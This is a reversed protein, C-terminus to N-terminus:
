SISNGAADPRASVFAMSNRVPAIGSSFGQENQPICFGWLYRYAIVKVASKGHAKGKYGRQAKRSFSHYALCKSLEDLTRIEVCALLLEAGKTLPV